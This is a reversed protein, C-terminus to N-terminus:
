VHARGIKITSKERQSLDNFQDIVKIVFETCATGEYDTALEQGHSEIFNVIQINKEPTRLLEDNDVTKSKSVWIPQTNIWYNCLFAITTLMM